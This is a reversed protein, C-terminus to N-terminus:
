LRVSPHIRPAVPAMASCRTMARFNEKLAKIKQNERNAVERRAM